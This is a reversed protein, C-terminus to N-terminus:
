RLSGVLAVGLGNPVVALQREGGWNRMRLLPLTLGVASGVLAGTLVDTFYHMDGMIRLIGTATATGLLALCPMLDRSGGGYIPLKGHFVCSTVAGAFAQSTHGSFFSRFRVSGTCDGNTAPVEDGCDEVYPRRRSAIMNATSQIAATVFQVEIALLALERGVEPAEHFWFASVFGDFLFPFSVSFSLLLDSADRARGREVYDDRRLNRRVTTDFTPQSVWGADIGMDDNPEALPGVVQTGITTAVAVGLLGYDWRGFHGWGEGWRLSPGEADLERVSTHEFHDEDAQALPEPGQAREEDAAQAVEEPSPPGQAFGVSSM